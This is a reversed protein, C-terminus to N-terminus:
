GVVEGDVEAVLMVSDMLPRVLDAVAGDDMATFDAYSTTAYFERSMAVIAPIDAETAPRIMPNGRTHLLRRRCAPRIRPRQRLGPVAVPQPVARIRLHCLPGHADRRARDAGLAQRLSRFLTTYPFLTSRPPRRIM